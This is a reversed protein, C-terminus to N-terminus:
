NPAHSPAVDASISAAALSQRKLDDLALVYWLLCGAAAGLGIATRALVLGTFLNMAPGPQLHNFLYVVGGVTAVSLLGLYRVLWSPRVFLTGRPSVARAEGTLLSLLARHRGDALEQRASSVFHFPLVACPLLAAAYQGLSKLVGMQATYTQFAAPVIPTAPLFHRLAFWIIGALIVHVACAELVGHPRRRAVSRRAAWFPIPATIAGAVTALLVLQALTSATATVDYALETAVAIGCLLAYAVCVAVVFLRQNAVPGALTTAPAHFRRAVLPEGDLVTAIDRGVDEVRQYREGPAQRLMGDIVTLLDPPLGDPVRTVSDAPEAVETGERGGAVPRVPRGVLESLVLGLSYIDSAPTLPRQGARQEPSAYDPTMLRVGVSTERGGIGGEAEFLKAIGFDLLKPTGDERVIINSPKLDRHVIGRQHVHAVAECVRRFLMLIQKLQPCRLRCFDDIHQGEVYEMVAFPIGDAEGGDLLTVIYPHRLDALAQRESHFREALDPSLLRAHPLKVVVTERYPELREALYVTAMGGRDLEGVVRYNGLERGESLPEFMALSELDVAPVGLAIESGPIASLLRRVQHQIEDSAWTLRSLADLPNEPDADLAENFARFVPDETM